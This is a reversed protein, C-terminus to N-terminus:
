KQDRYKAMQNSEAVYSDQIQVSRQEGNMKTFSLTITEDNVKSDEHSPKENNEYWILKAMKLPHNAREMLDVFTRFTKAQQWTLYFAEVKKDSDNEYYRFRQKVGKLTTKVRESPYGESITRYCRLEANQKDVIVHIYEEFNESEYDVWESPPVEDVVNFGDNQAEAEDEAKTESMM